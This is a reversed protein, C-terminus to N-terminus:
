GKIFKQTHLIRDASIILIYMGKQMDSLDVRHTLVEDPVVENYVINGLIDCIKVTYREAEPKAPLDISFRGDNPNPYLSFNENMYVETKVEFDLVSSSTTSNLNDTATAHLSYEGEELDKLSFSYPAATREGLKVNGNYLAVSHISGDHDFAEVDIVVTAPSTYSSGKVPSSITVVPPQNPPPQPQPTVPAACNNTVTRASMSAAQAGESTQLPNTLPKTYAVSVVDGYVIPSALTLQVKTGSVAVSNVTRSTGNVIVAFASAAPIVNVLNLSYTLAIVSPSSNEVVAGSFSPVPPTYPNPDPLLIVSRYPLLTVSGAYKTGRVDIMPQALAYTKNSTTPNYYFDIKSTDSVSVPSKRSNRDQSTFSQWSALTRYKSGTSPSYTHFVDDDDAPRAYCNNDATGFAPIDDAVSYFKLALQSASKAFFINNTLTNNRISSGSSNQFFMGYGNNYATNNDLKNEHARHIMYGGEACFAVTNNTINVNTSNVDLYIGRAIHRDAYPTGETNGIVNTIINGDIKRSVGEAATYIGGGDNLTLLVNDIYNNQITIVDATSSLKIGCYGINRITNNKILCDNNNIAIGNTLNGSFAQGAILGVKEIVNATIKHQTGVAMIATQNSSSILNNTINGYNGWLNIVDLGAFTFQSNQVTIYDNANTIFEIMDSASGRFHINDITIYDNGTDLVLNNLTAVEVKKTTPDNSGFYIYIKGTTVDHYWEGYSSLTRIDNQIFYGHRAVADQVSGMSSYSLTGGSHSTILCRDLSWDNKRIAVEAGKWNTASGLETDTISLNSSASEYINYGTDPWRGMAYQKNEIVVMNTLGESKLSASYIGNGENTWSTIATFGTIIPKDGTGYAGLTIPSNSAGSKIIKITGYFINGRKFLIRDGPKLVSFMSNVKDITAWASADSTGTNQDNGGTKVYYDTAAALSSLALFFLFLTTKM